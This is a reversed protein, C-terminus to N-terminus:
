NESKSLLVGWFVFNIKNLELFFDSITQFTVFKQM